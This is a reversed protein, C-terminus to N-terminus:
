MTRTSLWVTLSKKASEFALPLRAIDEPTRVARACFGAVESEQGHLKQMLEAITGAREPLEATFFLDCTKYAIGKYSYDNPFTCLFATKEPAVGTEELCERRVAEEATEDYNCFGGPLALLGKRPEKARVEFLVNGDRDSIIAAVAAAVNNYLTFNCEECRWKKGDEYRVATGGCNPCFHFDNAPM